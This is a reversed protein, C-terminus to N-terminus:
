VTKKIFIRMLVKTFTTALIIGLALAAALELTYLGRELFQEFNSQFAYAMTYYLSSGPILPILATIIFATTPTKLVRAMVQAFLAAAFAVLLYNIAENPISLQLLLFLLWTFLGSIGAVVMRIGRINFLIAFGFSGVCGALVQIIAQQINM